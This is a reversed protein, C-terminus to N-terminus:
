ALRRGGGRIEGAVYNATQWGGYSFVVPALAAAFALGPAGVAPANTRPPAGAPSALALGAFVLAILVLIKAAGAWAQLGAGARVNAGNVTALVALAGVIVLSQPLRAGVAVDLYRAFVIAVAAMGGAHVVLLTTWAFLFGVLPGFAQRLYVYEGGTAPMASALEAYIFAGVLAFVGGLGWVTIVMEPSALGRAVVAPNVFIGVGVIGGVVLM